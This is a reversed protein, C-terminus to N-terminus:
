EKFLNHKAEDKFRKITADLYGKDLDIGIYKRNLKYSAIGTTGHGNFPDLVIAGKQSSARIIRDLLASPKQTPHKGHIKEEPKPPTISWFLDQWVNKMQKSSVAKMDNYNFTHRGKYSKAAWIITETSHTFYRCSLNPPPNIKFWVIDNLLKFGLQQMAYGISHIVHATGSVWITGNYTLIRQCEKLWARNFEHNEEVGMSKDWSGKNVSVMKGAHCTIGGNSLFYPPDAFILDISNDPISSLIKLCDDNYLVFSHNEGEFYPKQPIKEIVDLFGKQHSYSKQVVAPMKIVPELGIPENSM